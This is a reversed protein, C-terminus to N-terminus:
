VNEDMGRVDSVAIVDIKHYKELYGDVIGELEGQDCRVESSLNGNVSIALKISTNGADILLNVM